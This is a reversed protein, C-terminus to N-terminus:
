NNKVCRISFGGEKPIKLNTIQSDSNRIIYLAFENNGPTYALWVCDSGITNFTGDWNRYGGPLAAFGNEDKLKEGAVEEGGLYELLTNWDEITSTHWGTPCLISYKAARWSYLAGYQNKFGSNNGNWCYAPLSSQKWELNDTVLNISNGNNFKTTKLNEKLWIQTGIRVTDYENGDGDVPLGSDKECRTLLLSSIIIILIIRYPTIKNM